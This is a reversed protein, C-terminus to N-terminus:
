LFLVNEVIYFNMHITIHSLLGNDYLYKNANANDYLYKNGMWGEVGMSSWQDQTRGLLSEHQIGMHTKQYKKFDLFWLCREKKRGGEDTKAHM